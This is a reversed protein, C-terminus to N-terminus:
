EGSMQVIIQRSRPRNDFDVLVIQQWTGRILKKNKLPFTQSQGLFAARVHASGNGDGWATNHAYPMDKPFIREFATKLDKVAGPEFEITTIGATSGAIFVTVLGNSVKSKRVADEVDSTVDLIATDGQTSLSFEITEVSM